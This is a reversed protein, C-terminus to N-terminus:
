LLEPNEYINGIVETWATGWDSLPLGAQFQGHNFVVEYTGSEVDTPHDYCKVIDGEYIEKRNKDRLGTFEMIELDNLAELSDFPDGYKIKRCECQWSHVAGMLM